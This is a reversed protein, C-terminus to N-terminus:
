KVLIGGEEGGLRPLPWPLFRKSFPTTCHRLKFSWDLLEAAAGAPYGLSGCGAVRFGRGLDLADRRKSPPCRLGGSGVCLLSFFIKFCLFAAIFTVNSGAQM